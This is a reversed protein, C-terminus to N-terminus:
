EGGEIEAILARISDQFHMTATQMGADEIYKLISTLQRDTEQLKALMEGCKTEYEIIAIINDTIPQPFRRKIGYHASLFAQINEAARMAPTTKTQTM